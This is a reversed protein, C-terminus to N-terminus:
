PAPRWWVGLDNLADEVLDALVEVEVVLVM